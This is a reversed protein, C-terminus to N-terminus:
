DRDEELEPCPRYGKDRHNIALPPVWEQEDRVKVGRHNKEETKTWGEQIKLCEARIQEPTPVYIPVGTRKAKQVKKKSNIRKRPM